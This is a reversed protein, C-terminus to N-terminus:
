LRGRGVAPAGRGWWYGWASRRAWPEGGGGGEHRFWCCRSELGCLRQPACLAETRGIPDRV